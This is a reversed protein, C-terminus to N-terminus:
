PGRPRRPFEDEDLDEATLSFPQVDPKNLTGTVFLPFLIQKLLDLVEQVLPLPIPSRPALTFFLKMRMLSTGYMIYNEDDGGFTEVRAANSVFDMERITIRDPGMWFFVHGEDFNAENGTVAAIQSFLPVELLKATNRAPDKSNRDFPQVDVRGRGIQGFRDPQSHFKMEADLAGVLEGASPFAMKGLKGLDAARIEIEGSYDEGNIGFRGELWGDYFSGRLNPFEVREGFYQVSTSVDNFRADKFFVEKVFMTGNQRSTDAEFVGEMDFRATMDDFHLGLELDTQYIDLSVQYRMYDGLGSLEIDIDFSGQPNLKQMVARLGGPLARRLAPSQFSLQRASASLSWGTAESYSASHMTLRGDDARGEVGRLSVDYRDVLVSGYMGEIPYPFNEFKVSSGELKIEFLWDMEGFADVVFRGSTGLTGGMKLKEAFQVLAPKEDSGPQQLMRTFATLLADDVPVRSAEIRLDMIPPPAEEGEPTEALPVLVQGNVTIRSPETQGPLESGRGSFDRIMIDAWQENVSAYLQGTVNSLTYPFRDFSVSGSRDGTGAVFTVDIDTFDTETESRRGSVEFRVYGHPDFRKLTAALERPLVATFDPRLQFDDSEVAFSPVDGGRYDLSLTVPSGLLKGRLNSLQVRDQNGDIRVTGAIERFRAPQEASPFQYQAVIDKAALTFDYSVDAEGQPQVVVSARQIDVKGAPAFQDVVDRINQPLRSKLDANFDLGESQFELRLKAQEGPNRAEEFIAYVWLREGITKLTGTLGRKDYAQIGGAPDLGLMNMEEPTYGRVIYRAPQNPVTIGEVVGYANHLPVPFAAGQQEPLGVYAATADHVFVKWNLNQDLRSKGTVPDRGKMEQDLRLQFDALGMPTFARCIFPLVEDIDPYLIGGRWPAPGQWEPFGDEYRGTEEDYWAYKLPDWEAESWPMGTNWDKLNDPQLRAPLLALRFQEDVLLNRIDVNVQLLENNTGVADVRANVRVDAGGRRGIADVSINNNRVQIDATVDSVALPFGIFCISGQQAEIDASFQLEKGPEIELRAEKISTSATIQFQEVTERVDEALVAAYDRDVQIPRDPDTRFLVTVHQDRRSISGGLEFHGFQRSFVGGSIVFTDAQTTSPLLGLSALDMKYWDQGPDLNEPPVLIGDARLNVTCTGQTIIEPLSPVEGAAGEGSLFLDNDLWEGKHINFHLVLGAELKVSTIPLAPLRKLDYDIQVKPVTLFDYELPTGRPHATRGGKRAVRLNYYTISGTLTISPGTFTTREEDWRVDASATNFVRGAVEHMLKNGSARNAAAQLAVFPLVFLILFLLLMIRFFGRRIVRGLAARVFARTRTFASTGKTSAM